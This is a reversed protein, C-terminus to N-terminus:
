TDSRATLLAKGVICGPWTSWILGYLGYGSPGGFPPIRGCCVRHAFLRFLLECLM